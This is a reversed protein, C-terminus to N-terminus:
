QRQEKEPGVSSSVSSLFPSKILIHPYSMEFLQWFNCVLTLTMEPSICRKYCIYGLQSKPSTSIVKIVEFYSVKAFSVNLNLQTYKDLCFIQIM